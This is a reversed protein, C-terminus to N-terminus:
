ASPEGFWEARTRADEIAVDDPDVVADRLVVTLVDRVSKVLESALREVSSDGVPVGIVTITRFDPTPGSVARLDFSVGRLRQRSEFILKVARQIESRAYIAQHVILRVGRARAEARMRHLFSTEPGAWWVSCTKSADDIAMFVLAPDNADPQQDRWSEFAILDADKQV